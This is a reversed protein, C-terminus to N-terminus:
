VNMGPQHTQRLYTRLDEVSYRVRRGVVRSCGINDALRLDRLQWPNLKLLAAAEPEDFALRGEFIPNTADIQALVEHVVEQVLPLLEERDFNFQAM